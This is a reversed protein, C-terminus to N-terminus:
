RVTSKTRKRKYAKIASLASRVQGTNDKGEAQARGIAQEIVGKLKPDLEAEKLLAAPMEVTKRGGVAPASEGQRRRYAKVANLAARVQGSYGAGKAQANSMAKEMVIKLKPDLETMGFAPPVAAASDVRKGEKYKKVAELVARAQGSVDAGRQRAKERANDIVKQLGSAEGKGVAALGGAAGPRSLDSAAPKDEAGTPEQEMAAVPPVSLKESTQSSGEPPM